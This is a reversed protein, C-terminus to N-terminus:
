MNLPGPPSLEPCTNMLSACSAPPAAAIANLIESANSRMLMSCVPFGGVLQIFAAVEDSICATYQAVTAACTSPIDNCGLNDAWPDASQQCSSEKNTCSTQLQADTPASSSAGYALGRWRCTTAKPIASGFYAYTDDCLQTVDAPALANLATTASITTVASGNSGGGGTGGGGSTGATGVSGGNGANGGTGGTGGGSSCGLTGTSVSVLLMGGVFGILGKRM